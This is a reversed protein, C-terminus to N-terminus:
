KNPNTRDMEERIFACQQVAETIATAYAVGIPIRLSIPHAELGKATNIAHLISDNGIEMNGNIIGVLQGTSRHLLPAGSNGSLNIASIQIIDRMKYGGVITQCLSSVYGANVSFAPKSSYAGIPFGCFFVEEGLRLPKERISIPQFSGKVKILGVDFAPDFKVWEANLVTGNSLEVTVSPKRSEFHREFEKKMDTIKPNNKELEEKLIKLNNHGLLVHACTLITNDTFFFGTGRGVGGNFAVEVRVISKEIEEIVDPFHRSTETRSFQQENMKHNEHAANSATLTEAITAIESTSTSGTSLLLNRNNRILYGKM